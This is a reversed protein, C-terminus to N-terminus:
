FEKDFSLGLGWSEFDNQGIGDYTGTLSLRTGNPGTMSLGPAIRARWGDESPTTGLGGSTNAHSYIANLTLTPQYLWGNSGLIQRSITPGVKVQGQSVTQSQITAGLTNTYAKQKDALYTLDVNPRIAWRGQTFEGSLSIGALWRTSKFSDTYTGVPTVDNNSTGGAVRVDLYLHEQLRATVYPGALWGKGETRTDESSDRLQDYQLVVGMLLDPSLLYDAGLHALGFNGDSGANGNFKHFSGDVWVDFRRNEHTSTGGQMVQLHDAARTIQDLSTAFKYDGSGLSLLNFEFPKLKTIEGSAFSLQETGAGRQLRDIGRSVNPQNALLLRSRTDLFQNITEVTKQVTADTTVTITM